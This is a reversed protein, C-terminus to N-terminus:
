NGRRRRRRPKDEGYAALLESVSRGSAHAGADEPEAPPESASERPEPTTEEAVDPQWADVAEWAPTDEVAEAEAAAAVPQAKPPAPPQARRPRQPRPLQRTAEERQQRQQRQKGQPARRPAPRAVTEPEAPPRPAPGRGGPRGPPRPPGGAASRPDEGPELPRAPHPVRTTAPDPGAPPQRQEAPVPPEGRPSSPAPQPRRPGPAGGRPHDPNPPPPGQDNPHGAPAPGGRAPRGPAPPRGTPAGGIVQTRDAPAPPPNGQRAEPDPEVEAADDVTRAGVALARVPPNEQEGSSIVRGGQDSLSRVRTSEARLAVREVLVDGGLLSELGRRLTELERQLGALQEQSEARLEDEVQRRTEAELDLEYERRAAVERELELEYVRRLEESQDAREAAERRYRAAAFAGFLAAWLGAVIGLRLLRADDSLLLLVTAGLALACGGIWLVPGRGVRNREDDSGSLGSM